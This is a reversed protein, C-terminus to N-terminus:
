DHIQEDIYEFVRKAIHRELSDEVDYVYEPFFIREEEDAIEKCAFYNYAIAAAYSPIMPYGIKVFENYMHELGDENSYKKRDCFYELFSVILRDGPLNRELIRMPKLEYNINEYIYDRMKDTCRSFVNAIEMELIDKYIIPVKVDNIYADYFTAFFAHEPSRAGYIDPTLKCKCRPNEFAEENTFRYGNECIM